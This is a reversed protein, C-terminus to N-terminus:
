TAVLYAVETRWTAPDPDDEPGTLFSELRAEWADGKDTPWKQWAIGQAAAWEQLAANAPIANQVGTYILTAYRGAPFEGAVVRGEAAVAAAVPVGVEIDLQAAMDIVLFRVFPPGDPSVGQQGLWGFVEGLLQPIVPGLDQMTVQTRMAVYPQAPRDELQPETHM